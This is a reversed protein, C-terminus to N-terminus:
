KTGKKKIWGSQRTGGRGVTANYAHREGPSLADDAAGASGHGIAQVRFGRERLGVVLGGPGGLHMAGVAVLTAGARMLAAGRDLMRRNRRELLDRDFWDRIAVPMQAYQARALRDLRALDGSLYAATLAELQKPMDGANKIMEDLLQLQLATSMGEFVALQEAPTELGIVRKGRELAALYIRMDLFRGTEAAPMGLLVAAAWPKLRQLIAPPVGLGSAAVRLAEFRQSGTLAELRQDAPLLSAAGVALMAVGDPVLEVAVVEVRAVLPQLQTMLGTVREDESHMTGVLFSVPGDGAQVRYAPFQGAPVPGVLLFLAWALLRRAAPPKAISPSM